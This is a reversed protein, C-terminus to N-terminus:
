ARPPPERIGLALKTLWERVREHPVVRGAAVDAEAEADLRAALAEDEPEFDFDSEIEPDDM